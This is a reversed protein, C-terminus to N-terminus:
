RTPTLTASCRRPAAIPFPMAPASSPSSQTIVENGAEVDSLMLSTHLASTGSVTAVAHTSGCYDAMSKEFREVYEGVYSVFTSDIVDALYKKENGRFRPEHLPIFGDTEYWDRVLEMFELISGHEM